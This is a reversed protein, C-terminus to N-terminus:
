CVAIHTLYNLRRSENLLIKGESFRTDIHLKYEGPPVAPLVAIIEKPRNVALPTLQYSTDGNVIFVGIGAEGVPEVKIREGAIIIQGGATLTGDTAGTTVDTVLGIYVSVDRIGLVEIGVEELAARMAATPSIDLTIKHTAPDYATSAGIWNGKVRPSLHCIGTQVSYGEQIKERRLRDARELVDLVTEYQLESGSNVYMRAVDANYLTKGTTSVEGVYDNDVDKTLRNLKLWLKWTFKKMYFSYINILYGL